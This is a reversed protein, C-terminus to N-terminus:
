NSSYIYTICFKTKLKSQNLWLQKIYFLNANTSDVSISSLEAHEYLCPRFCGNSVGFLIFSLLSLSSSLSLYFSLYLSPPFSLLSLSLSFPSLSIYLFSSSLSCSFIEVEIERLIDRVAIQYVPSFM